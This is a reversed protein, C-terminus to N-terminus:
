RQQPAVFRVGTPRSPVGPSPDTRSSRAACHPLVGCLRFFTRAITRVTRSPLTALRLYMTAARVAAFGNNLMAREYAALAPLLDDEGQGVAILARRLAGADYLAANGGLGGVPPMSHIADGLVTVNTTPWPKVREATAFDFREITDAPTQAILERLDPHWDTLRSTVLERLRQGRGGAPADLLDAPLVRRHAVYAWM